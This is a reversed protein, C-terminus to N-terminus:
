PESRGSSPKRKAFNDSRRSVGAAHSCSRLPADAGPPVTRVPAERRFSASSPVSQIEARTRLPKFIPTARLGFRLRPTSRVHRRSDSGESACKRGAAIKRRRRQDRREDSHVSALTTMRAESLGRSRGSHESAKRWELAGSAACRRRVASQPSQRWVAGGSVSFSVSAARENAAASVRCHSMRRSRVFFVTSVHVEVRATRYDHCAACQRRIRRRSARPERAKAGSPQCHQAVGLRFPGARLAPLKSAPAATTV